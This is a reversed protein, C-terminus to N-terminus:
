MHIHVMVGSSFKGKVSVTVLLCGVITTLLSKYGMQLHTVSVHIYCHMGYVYICTCAVVIIAVLVFLCM